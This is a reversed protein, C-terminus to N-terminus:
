RPDSLKDIRIKPLSEPYNKQMFEILKERVHVRLNWATPSDKASMLARVEMTQNNTNTVQINNVKGDWYSTNELIRTLENRIPEVPTNYDLYLFVTGLINASTRTWNQFPKDIFYTIPVILRRLDWIKVVVYTLNIEEIWGWEGEVIVVDDIRIPQTLAIQIGALVTAISKQAAFGVIIGAIGASALLNVGLQRVQEFVMLSSAIAIVVVIFIIFKEFIRLQTAAKRAKLNDETDIELRGIVVERIVRTIRILLFALSLIISIKLINIVSIGFKEDLQDIYINVTFILALSIIAWLIPIKLTRYAKRVHLSPENWFKKFIRFIFINLPILVMLVIIINLVLKLQPYNDIYDSIKQLIEM